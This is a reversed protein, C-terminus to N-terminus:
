SARHGTRQDWGPLRGEHARNKEVQVSRQELEVELREQLAVENCEFARGCWEVQGATGRQNISGNGGTVNLTVSIPTPDGMVSLVVVLVNETAAVWSEMTLTTEPTTFTSTLTPRYLEQRVNYSSNVLAPAFVDLSGFVRPGSEGYQSRLRWFDNKSLWFRQHDPTGSVCVGMDGNGLLPADVSADNPTHQPPRTYEVAHQAVVPTEAVASLISFGVAVSVILKTM